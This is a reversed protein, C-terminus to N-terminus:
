LVGGDKEIHRNPFRELYQAIVSVLGIVGPDQAVAGFPELLHVLGIIAQPPNWRPMNRRDGFAALAELVVLLETCGRKREPKRLVKRLGRIFVHADLAFHTSHEGFFFFPQSDQQWGDLNWEWAFNLRQARM